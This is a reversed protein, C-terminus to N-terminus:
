NFLGSLWMKFVNHGPRLEKTTLDRINKVDGNQRVVYVEEGRDWVNNMLFMHNTEMHRTEDNIIAIADGICYVANANPVSPTLHPNFLIRPKSTDPM